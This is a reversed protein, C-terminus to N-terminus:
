EFYLLHHAQKGGPRHLLFRLILEAGGEGLSVM